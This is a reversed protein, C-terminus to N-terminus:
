RKIGDPEVMCNKKFDHLNRLVEVDSKNIPTKSVADLMQNRIKISDIYNDGALSELYNKQILEKEKKTYMKDYPYTHAISIGAVVGIGIGILFLTVILGLM